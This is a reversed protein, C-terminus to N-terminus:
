TNREPRREWDVHGKGNQEQKNREDTDDILFNNPRSFILVGFDADPSMKMADGSTSLKNRKLPAMNISAEPPDINGVLLLLVEPDSRMRVSGHLRGRVEENKM